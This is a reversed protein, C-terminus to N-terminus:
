CVNANRKRLLKKTVQGAPDKYLRGPDKDLRDPAKGVQCSDNDLQSPIRTLDVQHGQWTSRSGTPDKDLRGIHNGLIGHKRTL